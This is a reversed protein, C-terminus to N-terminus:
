HTASASQTAHNVYAQVEPSTVIDQAMTRTLELTVRTLHSPTLGMIPATAIAAYGTPGKTLGAQRTNRKQETWLVKGTNADILELELAAKVWSEVLAYSRGWDIVTGQLLADAGLIQALQLEQSSTLETGPAWGISKVAADVRRLEVIEFAGEQLHSALGMRLSEAPKQWKPSTMGLPLIALKMRSGGSAAPAPAVAELPMQPNPMDTLARRAALDVVRQFKEDPHFSRAQDQLFDAVQNDMAAGGREAVDVRKRWLEVGTLGDLMRLTADLSTQTYAPNTINTLRAIDGYIVADAGVVRSIDQPTHHQWGGADLPGWAATLKADVEDPPVDDYGYPTFDEYFTKRFADRAHLHADPIRQDKALDYNYSIVFPLVAVRRPPHELVGHRVYAKGGCGLLGLVMLGAAAWQVTSRSPSM